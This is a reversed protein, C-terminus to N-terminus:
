FALGEAVHKKRTIRSHCECLGFEFDALNGSKKVKEIFLEYNIIINEYAENYSRGTGNFVVRENKKGGALIHWKEEFQTLAELRKQTTFLYNM